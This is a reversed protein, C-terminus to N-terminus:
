GRCVFNDLINYYWRVRILENLNWFWNVNEEKMEGFLSEIENIRMWKGFLSKEM